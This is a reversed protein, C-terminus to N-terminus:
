VSAARRGSQLPRYVIGVIMGYIAFQVINDILSAILLNKSIPWMVYEYVTSFACILIGVIVGFRLGEQRGNGGEYGKAYAYSFVFFGLLAFGFGIPQIRMQETQSRMISAYLAYSDRLLVHHVLYSIGLYATWAFFAALMVRSFNM